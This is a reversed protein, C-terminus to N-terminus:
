QLQPCYFHIAAVVFRAAGMVDFSPEQDMARRVAEVHSHGSEIFECVAGASAIAKARDAAVIGFAALHNLYAQDVDIADGVTHTWDPDWTATPPTATGITDLGSEPIAVVASQPLDPITAHVPARHPLMVAGVIVAAIALAALGSVAALTPLRRRNRGAITDAVRQVDPRPSPTSMAGDPM